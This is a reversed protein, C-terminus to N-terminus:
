YGADFDVRNELPKGQLYLKLNRNFIRFRKDDNKASYASAHPTLIVNPMEWLRSDSPLPEPTAVDLAAGAIRNEKLTEILAEQDILEGRSVNVIFASSELKRLRETNIIQRTRNTYPLSLVIYDSQL